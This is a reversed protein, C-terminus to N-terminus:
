FAFDVYLLSHPSFLMVTAALAAILVSFGRM